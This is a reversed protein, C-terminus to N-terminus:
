FVDVMKWKSNFVSFSASWLVLWGCECEGVEFFMLWFEVQPLFFGFFFRCGVVSNLECEYEGVEFCECLCVHM